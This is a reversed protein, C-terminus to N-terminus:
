TKLLQGGPQVRFFMYLVFPLPVLGFYSFNNGALVALFLRAALPVARRLNLSSVGASGHGHPVQEIFLKLNCIL